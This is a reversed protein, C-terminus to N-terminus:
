RDLDSPRVGLWRCLMSALNDGDHMNLPIRDILLHVCFLAREFVQCPLQTRLMSSTQRPSTAHITLCTKPARHADFAFARGERTM